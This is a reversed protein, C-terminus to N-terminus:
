EFFRSASSRRAGSSATASPASPAASPPTPPPLPWSRALAPRRRLAPPRRRGPRRRRWLDALQGLWRGLAAPSLAEAEAPPASGRGARGLTEIAAAADGTM